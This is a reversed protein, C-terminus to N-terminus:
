KLNGENKNFSERTMEIVTSFSSDAINRAVKTIIYRGSHHEVTSKNDEGISEDTFMAIDLPKIPKYVHGFTLSLKYSSYALQYQRNRDFARWYNSHVNANTFRAETFKRDINRNRDLDGQLAIYRDINEFQIDSTGAELENVLRDKGYSAINNFFGSHTDVPFYTGYQIDRIEDERKFGFRWDYDGAITKRMDRIRFINDSTIATALFSNPLWSHMYTKNVFERDPINYQIWNQSDSSNPINSDITFYNGVIDKVVAVGSKNSSISLKTNNIYELADLCGVLRVRRRGDGYKGINKRLIVLPINQLNDEDVGISINLRNGENAYTLIDDNHAVFILDFRPLTNGADEVVVCKILDGRGIFDNLPGISFGLLYQSKIGIL